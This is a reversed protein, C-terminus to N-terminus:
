GAQQLVKPHLVCVTSHVSVKESECASVRRWM